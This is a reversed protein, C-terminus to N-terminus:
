KEPLFLKVLTEFDKIQKLTDDDMENSESVKKIALSVNLISDVLKQNNVMQLVCQSIAWSRNMYNKDCYDDLEKLLDSDMTIQLKTKAAM